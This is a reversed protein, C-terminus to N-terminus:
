SANKKTLTEFNWLLKDLQQRDVESIDSTQDALFEKIIYYEDLNKIKGRKLVKQPTDKITSVLQNFSPFGKNILEENLETKMANPLDLMMTLIDRLGEKLGRKALSKSKKEWSTLIIVPSYEVNPDIHLIRTAKFQWLIDFINKYDNYNDDTVKLM